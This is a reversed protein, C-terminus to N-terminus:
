RQAQYYAWVRELFDKRDAADNLVGEEIVPLAPFRTVLASAFLGRGTQEAGGDLPYIPVNVLGCSPSRSKFIYGCLALEALADLRQASWAQMAVTHDQATETTVMLPAAPDGVLHLTERPTGMGVEVEPCVPVLDVFQALTDALFAYRKHGGDYRVPQGLLCASIGIRLRESLQGIQDLMAM